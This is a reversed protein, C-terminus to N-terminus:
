EKIIKSEIKSQLKADRKKERQMQCVLGLLDRRGRQFNPHKYIKGNPKVNMQHKFQYMNLQRIFANMSATKFYIPLMHKEFRDCDKIFVGDGNETWTIIDRYRSNKTM